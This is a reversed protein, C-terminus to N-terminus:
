YAKQVQPILSEMQASYPQLAGALEKGKLHQANKALDNFGKSLAELATVLSRASARRATLAQEDAQWRGDLALQVEPSKGKAYKEYHLALKTEESKLLRGTYDDRVITVMANVVDTVNASVKPLDRELDKAQYGATTASVLLKALSGLAAQRADNEGAAGAANKAVSQADTGAKATGFSAISNIAGFYAALTKAMKVADDGQKGIAACGADDEVPARFTAFDERSNVERLCSQKMDGFLTEATTLTTAASACFQSIASPTTCGALAISASILFAVCVFTRSM